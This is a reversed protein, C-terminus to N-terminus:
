GGAAGARLRQELRERAAGFAEVSHEYADRATSYREVAETRVGGSFIAVHLRECRELNRDAILRRAMYERAAAQAGEELAGFAPVMGGAAGTFDGRLLDWMEAWDERVEGDTMHRYGFKALVSRGSSFLTNPLEPM